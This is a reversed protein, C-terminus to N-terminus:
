IENVNVYNYIYRSYILKDIAKALRVGTDIASKPDNRLHNAIEIQMSNVREDYLHSRWMQTLNNKKWAAFKGGIKAQYVNFGEERLFIVFSNKHWLRCTYCPPIGQGYGLVIDIKKRDSMGHIYFIGAYGFKQICEEKFNILPNLFEKKCPDLRCHNIDNLNAKQEGLVAKKARQWGTNIIAHTSLQTAIVESIIDTNVDDEHYGHPAVVIVPSKGKKASVRKM